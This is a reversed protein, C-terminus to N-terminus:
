VRDVQSVFSYLALFHISVIDEEKLSVEEPVEFDLNIILFRDGERSYTWDFKHGGTVRIDFM